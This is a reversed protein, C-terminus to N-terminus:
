PLIITLEDMDAVASACEAFVLQRVDEVAKPAAGIRTTVAAAAQSQVDAAGQHVFHVAINKRFYVIPIHNNRRNISNGLSINNKGEFDTITVNVLMQQGCLLV